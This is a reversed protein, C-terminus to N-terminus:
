LIAVTESPDVNVSPIPQGDTDRVVAWGFPLWLTRRPKVERAVILKASMPSDGKVRRTVEYCRGNAMRRFRSGEGLAGVKTTTEEM